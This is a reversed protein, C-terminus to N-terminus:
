RAILTAPPPKARDRSGEPTLLDYQRFYLRLRDLRVLTGSDTHRVVAKRHEARSRRRTPLPTPPTAPGLMVRIPRGTASSGGCPIPAWPPTPCSASATASQWPHLLRGSPPVAQVCSKQRCTERACPGCVLPGSVRATWPGQDLLAPHLRGSARPRAPRSSAAPGVSSDRGVRATGASRALASVGVVRVARKRAVRSRSSVIRSGRGISAGLQPSFRARRM